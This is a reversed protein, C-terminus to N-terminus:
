ISDHKFELESKYNEGMYDKAYILDKLGGFKTDFYEMGKEDKLIKATHRFKYINFSSKGVFIFEVYPVLILLGRHIIKYVYVEVYQNGYYSKEQINTLLKKSNQEAM